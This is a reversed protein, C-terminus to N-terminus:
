HYPIQGGHPIHDTQNWNTPTIKSAYHTPPSGLGFFGFINRGVGKLINVLTSNIDHVIIRLLYLQRYVKVILDTAVHLLLESQDSRNLIQAVNSDIM